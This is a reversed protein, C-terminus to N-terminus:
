PLRVGPFSVRSIADQLQKTPYKTGYNKSVGASWRGTIANGIPTDHLDARRLADEFSHRFSHFSLMRGKLELDRVKRSFWKSTGDGWKGLQDRKVDPFLQERKSERAQEVFDWFGMSLLTPHIPVIRSKGGKIHREGPRHVFNFIPAEDVEIMEDVLQGCIETLRAGSFLGILPAWYRAPNEDKASFPASWPPSSFIRNLHSTSFPDRKESPHIPDSVEINAMPNGAIWGEDRGFRIVAGLKNLHSNITAPSIVPLGAEEGIEIAETIARDKTAPLKQYNVPLRTLISRVNRCFDKDIQDVPTDRGCIEELVRTIIIYNKRTSGSWKDDRDANFKDILAGLTRPRTHRKPAEDGFSPDADTDPSMKGELRRLENRYCQLRARLMMRCLYEFLEADPDLTWGREECLWRASASMTSWTDADFADLQNAIMVRYGEARNLRASPNDGIALLTKGRLSSLMRRFHAYVALDIEERSVPDTSSAPAADRVFSGKRAREIATHFEDILAHSKRRAISLDAGLSRKFESQGLAARVDAPVQVRVVYRDGRRYLYNTGAVRQM